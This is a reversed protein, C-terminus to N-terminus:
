PQGPPLRRKGHSKLRAANYYATFFAGDVGHLQFLGRFHRGCLRSQNGSPTSTMMCRLTKQPSACVM